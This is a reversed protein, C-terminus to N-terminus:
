RPCRFVNPPNNPDPLGDMCDNLCLPHYQPECSASAPGAGLSGLGAAVFAAVLLTRRM